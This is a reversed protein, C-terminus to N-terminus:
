RKFDNLSLIKNDPKINRLRNLKSFIIEKIDEDLYSIDIVEFFDDIEVINRKDMDANYFARKAISVIDIIDVDLDSLELLYILIKRKYTEGGRISMELDRELTNTMKFLAELMEDKTLSKAKKHENNELEEWRSVAYTHLPDYEDTTYIVDYVSDYYEYNRAFDYAYSDIRRKILDYKLNSTKHPIEDAHELLVSELISYDKDSIAEALLSRDISLMTLYINYVRNLAKLNNKSVNKDKCLVINSNEYASLVDCLILYAFSQYIAPEGKFISEEKRNIFLKVEIEGNQRVRFEYKESGALLDFGGYNFLYDLSEEIYNGM